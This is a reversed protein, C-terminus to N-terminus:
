QFSNGTQESEPSDDAEAQLIGLLEVTFILVSYPPIVEGAGQEGYALASPIYIRYKSGASMLLIGETWGPIVMDLPIEEPEGRAYSSDFVTGDTLSGEYHVRVTDSASPKPGDAETIVEYQLGSATTAIESRRANEELFAAEKIRNAETQRNVARELVATVTEDAEELSMRSQNAAMAAKLGEAFAAYDFDVGLDRQRIDEGLVMGFAYSEKSQEAALNIDEQIGKAFLALASLFLCLTIATKKM